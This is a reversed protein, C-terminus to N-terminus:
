IESISKNMINNKNDARIIRKINISNMTINRKKNRINAGQIKEKKKEKVQRTKQKRLTIGLFMLIVQFSILFSCEQARSWFEQILFEPALTWCDM